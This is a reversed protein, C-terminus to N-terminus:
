CSRVAETKLGNMTVIVMNVHVCHERHSLTVMKYMVTIMDTYEGAEPLYRKVHIFLLSIVM